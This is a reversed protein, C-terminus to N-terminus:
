PLREMHAAVANLFEAVVVGTWVHHPDTTWKAAAYSPVIGGHGAWGHARGFDNALVVLYDRAPRVDDAAWRQVHTLVFQYCTADGPTLDVAAVGHMHLRYAAWAAGKQIHELDLSRRITAVADDDTTDTSM